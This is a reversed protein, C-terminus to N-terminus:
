ADENGDRAMRYAEAQEAILRKGEYDQDRNDITGFRRGQDAIRSSLALNFGTMPRKAGTDFHIRLSQLYTGVGESWDTIGKSAMHSTIYGFGGELLRKETPTREPQYRTLAPTEDQDWTV